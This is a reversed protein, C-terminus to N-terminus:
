VRRINLKNLKTARLRVWFIERTKPDTKLIEEIKDEYM